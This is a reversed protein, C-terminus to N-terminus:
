LVCDRFYLWKEPVTQGLYLVQSFDDANMLESTKYLPFDKDCLDYMSEFAEYVSGMSDYADARGCYLFYLKDFLVKRNVYSLLCADLDAISKKPFLMPLDCQLSRLANSEAQIEFRYKNHNQGYHLSNGRAAVDDICLACAGDDSACEYEVIQRVHEFEHYMSVLLDLATYDDVRHVSSPLGKSGIFCGFLLRGDPLVDTIMRGCGVFLDPSDDFVVDALDYNDSLEDSLANAMNRFSKGRLGLKYERSYM